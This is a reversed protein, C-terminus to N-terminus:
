APPLISGIAAILAALGVLFVGLGVLTRGVLVGPPEPAPEPEPPEPAPPPTVQAYSTPLYANYRYRAGDYIKPIYHAPGEGTLDVLAETDANTVSPPTWAWSVRAGGEFAFFQYQKGADFYIKSGPCYGELAEITPMAEEQNQALLPWPDVWHTGGDSVQLHLHPGSVNGVSDHYGIIAGLGVPMGMHATIREMHAYVIRTGDAAQITM